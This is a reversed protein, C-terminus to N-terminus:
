GLSFCTNILKFVIKSRLGQSLYTKMGSQSGVLQASYFVRSLNDKKEMATVPLSDHRNQEHNVNKSFQLNNSTANGKLLSNTIKTQEDPTESIPPLCENHADEHHYENLNNFQAPLSYCQREPPRDYTGTANGPSM